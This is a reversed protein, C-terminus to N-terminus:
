LKVVAVLENGKGIYELSDFSSIRSMVIGRGNPDFARDPSMDMYKASDFGEGCDRITLLLEQPRHELSVEVKKHAHEPQALRREVEREWKGEQLLSSKEKYSIGLNGHELANILLESIGLFVRQPHPYYVSLASALTRVEPLTRLHFEGKVLMGALLSQELNAMQRMDCSLHFTSVASQVIAFLVSDNIPKVLYYFAGAKIGEAIDAPRDIATQFIVPLDIYKSDAKIRALLGMGDLRPMMRDLLIASFNHQGGALIEWAVEGDEALVVSYGANGLLEQLLDRNFAEDDVVLLEISKKEM